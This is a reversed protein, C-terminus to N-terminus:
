KIGKLRAESDILFNPGFSILDNERLGDVVEIDDGSSRGLVIKVPSLKGDNSVKYVLTEKGTRLVADYPIM